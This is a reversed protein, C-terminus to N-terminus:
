APAAELMGEVARWMYWSAVSRYPAWPEGIRRAEAPTPMDTLNYAIRMGNRVGFDGVPLVDPRGLQSMLFMHASWEGYGRVATIREIVEADDLAEIGAFVLRGALIHEALDRMSAAKQRSVGTGRFAEDTTALLETPTPYRGGYLAQWRTQITTAARGNLQQFLVTRLLSDYHDMAPRLRYPGYADILEGVVPDAARLHRYAAAASFRLRTAM